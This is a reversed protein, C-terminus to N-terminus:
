YGKLMDNHARNDHIALDDNRASLKPSRGIM